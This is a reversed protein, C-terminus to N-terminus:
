RYLLLGNFGGCVNITKSLTAYITLNLIGNLHLFLHQFLNQALANIEAFSWNIKIINSSDRLFQVLVSLYM